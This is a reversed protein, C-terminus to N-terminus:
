LIGLIRSRPQCDLGMLLARDSERRNSHLRLLVSRHLQRIAVESLSRPSVRLYFVPRFRRLFMGAVVNDILNQFTLCLIPDSPTM